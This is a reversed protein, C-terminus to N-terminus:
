KASVDFFQYYGELSIEIEDSVVLIEFTQARSSLVMGLLISWKFYQIKHFLACM